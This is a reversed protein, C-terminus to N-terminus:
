YCQSLGQVNGDRGVFLYLSGMDGIMLDNEHPWGRPEAVNVFPHPADTAVSISGIAGIFAGSTSPQEQIYKPVGGIKTGEFIASDWDETRHLVAYFPALPADVAPMESVLSHSAIPWWEFLLREPEGLLADDDGFILLIDGPLRPVLDRSDVFSLQAIFRQPKGTVERPWPSGSPRYPLGGIKTFSRNPSEGKAWIVVDTAFRSGPYRGSALAEEKLQENVAVSKPGVVIEWKPCMLQIHKEVAQDDAYEQPLEQRRQVVYDRAEARLRSLPFEHIWRAIDLREHASM